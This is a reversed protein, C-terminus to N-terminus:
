EYLYNSYQENELNEKDIWLYGSDIMDDNKLGLTARAAAVITAYGMGYPNQSVTGIEIGNKIAEIQKKGADFGVVAIERDKYGNLVELVKTTTVENTCFFAKLDEHGLIAGEAMENISVEENENGTFVIEVNPHNKEIEQIFGEKRERSNQSSEVHAIIAIKGSDGIAECLRRAAEEGARKNDTSCVTEFMDSSLGSDLVVVPIGNESATELQAQCSEMDIASLCLVSPNESLVADIINIQSEVDLEEAPGEFSFVIKDEGKYGLKENLDDVAAQMGKKVKGFFGTKTTKVVVAIHSGPELNLDELNTYDIEGGHNKLALMTPDDLLIEKAEETKEETTKEETNKEEEAKETEKNQSDKSDETEQKDKEQTQVTEKSEEKKDSNNKKTCGALLGVSLILCLFSVLRRKM